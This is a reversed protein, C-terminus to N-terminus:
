RGEERFRARLARRAAATVGSAVGQDAPTSPRARVTPTAAAESSVLYAALARPNPYKFPVWIPIDRGLRTQLGAHLQVLLASTLGAEFFGTDPDISFGTVAQILEDLVARTAAETLPAGPAQSM